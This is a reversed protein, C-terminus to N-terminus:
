SPITLAALSLSVAAALRTMCGGPVRWQLREASLFEELEEHAERTGRPEPTAPRPPSINCITVHCRTVSLARVEGLQLLRDEVGDPRVPRGGGFRDAGRQLRAERELVGAHARQQAAELRPAVEGVADLALHEDVARLHRRAAEGRAGDAVDDV